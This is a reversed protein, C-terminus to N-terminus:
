IQIIPIAQCRCLIDGGPHNRSGQRGDTVPPTAWQHVTGHLRVHDPRVREDQSTDWTYETIGMTVQRTQQIQANLKLTQDRAILVARRVSVKLVKALSLGVVESRVGRRVADGLLSEVQSLQKFLLDEILSVNQSIFADIAGGGGLVTAEPSIALLRALQRKVHQDVKGAQARALDEPRAGRLLRAFVIRLGEIIVGVEPTQGADLREEEFALAAIFPKVARLIEVQSQRVLRTLTREYSREAATPPQPTASARRRSQRRSQPLERVKFLDALEVM